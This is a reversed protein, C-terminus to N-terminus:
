CGRVEWVHVAAREDSLVFLGVPMDGDDGDAPPMAAMSSVQGSLWPLYAERVDGGYFVRLSWNFPYSPFGM